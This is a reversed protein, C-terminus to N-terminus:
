PCEASLSSFELFLILLFHLYFNYAALCLLRLYKWIRRPICLPRIGKCTSRFCLRSPVWSRYRRPSSNFPSVSGTERRVHILIREPRHRILFAPWTRNSTATLKVPREDSRESTHVRFHAFAAPWAPCVRALDRVCQRCWSQFQNSWFSQMQPM